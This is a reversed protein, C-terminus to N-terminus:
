NLDLLILRMKELQRKGRRNVQHKIAEFNQYDNEYYRNSCMGNTFRKVLKESLLDVRNEIRSLILTQHQGFEFRGAADIDKAPTATFVFPMKAGKLNDRLGGISGM